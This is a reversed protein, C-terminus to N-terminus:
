QNDSEFEQNEEEVMPTISHNNYQIYGQSSVLPSITKEVTSSSSSIRKLENNEAVLTSQGADCTEQFAEFTKVKLRLEFNKIKDKENM